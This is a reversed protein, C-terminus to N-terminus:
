TKEFPDPNFEADHVEREYNLTFAQGLRTFCWAGFELPNPNPDGGMAVYEGLLRSRCAAEFRQAQAATLSITVDPM